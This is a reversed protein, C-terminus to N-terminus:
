ARNLCSFNWASLIGAGLRRAFAPGDCLQSARMHQRLTARYERIRTQDQALDIARRVYDDESTAILETTGIAHHLSVGVRAAHRDGALTVVPTGMWMAECTTTTGHYPITDLAVDVRAYMAQHERLEKTPQVCRVRRALAEGEAGGARVFAERLAHFATPDAFEQAKLMLTADPAERLIRVWLAVCATSIKRASNFSAFVPGPGDEATRERVPAPANEWPQYCLFCGDLRLLKETAREDFTPQPDGAPSPPVPGPPDTLHDVIRYDVTTLGTTDPYGLYTMQVPAPRQALVPLANGQTHGALDILVDIADDRIRQALADTKLTSVNRWLACHKKLRESVADEPTSNMYAILEMSGSDHLTCFPEIFFAVSHLRLDPSIIAVRPRRAADKPGIARAPLPPYTRQAVIGYDRHLKSIEAPQAESMTVATSALGSRVRLNSPFDASARALVQMAERVRGLAVLSAAHATCLQDHPGLARGEECLRLTEEYQHRESLINTVGVRADFNKPDRRLAERFLALCRDRAVPTADMSTICIALNVMLRPDHPSFEHARQSFYLAREQNGQTIYAYGLMSALPASGPYKPLLRSLAAIALAAQGAQIQGQALLLKESLGPPNGPASHSSFTSL